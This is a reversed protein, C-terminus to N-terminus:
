HNHMKCSNICHALTASGLRKSYAANRLDYGFASDQSLRLSVTKFNHQDQPIYRSHLGFNMSQGIM